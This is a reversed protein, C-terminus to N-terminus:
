CAKGEEQSAKRGILIGKWCKDFDLGKHTGILLSRMALVLELVMGVNRLVQVDPNATPLHM